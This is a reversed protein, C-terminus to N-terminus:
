VIQRKVKLKMMMSIRPVNFFVTFVTSGSTTSFGVFFIYEFYKLIIM